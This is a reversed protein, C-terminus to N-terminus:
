EFYAAIVSALASPDLADLAVERDPNLSHGIMAGHRDFTVALLRVHDAERVVVLGGCAPFKDPDVVLIASAPMAAGLTPRCVRLAFARPGAGQPSEVDLGTPSLAILGDPLPAGLVALRRASPMANPGGPAPAASTDARLRARLEALKTRTRAIRPEAGSIEAIRADLSGARFLRDVAARLATMDSAGFLRQLAALTPPNWREVPKHANELRSLIVPPIGYDEDLVAITLSPDSIRRHRVAAALKIAFEAQEGDSNRAHQGAAAWESMDFDPADVDLLLDEPAVELAGAIRVLEDPRATVEGREIKSLRIYPIEPVRQALALLKPFGASRRLRRLHNPFVIARYPDIEIRLQRHLAMNGPM